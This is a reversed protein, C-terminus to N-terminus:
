FRGYLCHFVLVTMEDIVTTSAMSAFPQIFAAFDALKTFSTGRLAKWLSADATEPVYYKGIRFDINAKHAQSLQYRCDEQM